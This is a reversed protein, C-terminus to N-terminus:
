GKLLDEKRHKAELEDAATTPAQDANDADQAAGSAPSTENDQMNERELLTVESQFIGPMQRPSNQTEGITYHEDFVLVYHLCM